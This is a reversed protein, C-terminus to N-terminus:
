KDLNPEQNADAQRLQIEEIAEDPISGMYVEEDIVFFSYWRSGMKQYLVEVVEDKEAGIGANTTKKNSKNKTIKANM